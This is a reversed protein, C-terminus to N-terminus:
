SQSKRPNGRAIEVNRLFGEYRARTVPTGGFMARFEEESLSAM